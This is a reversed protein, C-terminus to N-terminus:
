APLKGPVQRTTVNLQNWLNVTAISLILTALAREDYHRRAEEWVADPVPDNSDAIRAMADTLALAAREPATFYPSERWAGVGFLREDSEGLKRLEKAHMDVCFSCGNIQSARLHTMAITQAPVGGDELLRSVSRLADLSGPIVFVPNKMRAQM